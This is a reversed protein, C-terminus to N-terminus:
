VEGTVGGEAAAGPHGQASTPCSVLGRGYGSGALCWFGGDTISACCGVFGPLTFGVLSTHEYGEQLGWAVVDCGTANAIHDGVGYPRHIDREDLLWCASGATAAASGPLARDVRVEQNARGTTRYMPMRPSAEPAKSIPTGMTGNIRVLRTGTLGMVAASPSWAALSGAVTAFNTWSAPSSLGGM